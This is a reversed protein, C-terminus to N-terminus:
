PWRRTWDTTVFIKREYLDAWRFFWTFRGTCFADEVTFNKFRKSDLYRPHIPTRIKLFYGFDVTNEHGDDVLIATIPAVFRASEIQVLKPRGHKKEEIAIM